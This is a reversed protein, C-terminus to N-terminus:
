PRLAEMIVNMAHGRYQLYRIIKAKEKADQPVDDAFKKEKVKQCLEFWDVDLEEIAQEVLSADLGKQRLEQKIRSPGHGKNVQKNLEREILRCDDVYHHSQLREMVLDVSEENTVECQLRRRLEGSSYDRKALLAIAFDYLEINTM